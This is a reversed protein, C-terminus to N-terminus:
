ANGTFVYDPIQLLITAKEDINYIFLLGLQRYEQLMQKMRSDAGPISDTINRRRLTTVEGNMTDIKELKDITEIIHTDIHHFLQCEMMAYFQM